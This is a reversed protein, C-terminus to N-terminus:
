RRPNPPQIAEPKNSSPQVPTLSPQACTLNGLTMNCCLDFIQGACSQACLNPGLKQNNKENTQQKNDGTQDRMTSQTRADQMKQPPSLPLLWIVLVDTPTPNEPIPTLSGELLEPLAGRLSFSGCSLQALGRKQRGVKKKPQTM